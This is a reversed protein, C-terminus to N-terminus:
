YFWLIQPGKPHEKIRISLPCPWCLLSDRTALWNIQQNRRSFSHGRISDQLLFLPKLLSEQELFLLAKMALCYITFTWEVKRFWGSMVRPNGTLDSAKECRALSSGDKHGGKRENQTSSKQFNIALWEWLIFSHRCNWVKLFINTCQTWMFGGVYWKFASEARGLIHSISIDANPM